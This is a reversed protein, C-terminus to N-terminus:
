NIILGLKVSLRNFDIDLNYDNEASYRLRHFRYGVSMTFGYGSRSHSIIGIAPNILFGGKATMPTQSVPWPGPWIISSSVYDPVVDYYVTRSGEIPVQYGAQLMAYPTVRTERLKYLLNATIPLYTEKLFEVGIGAGASLKNRINYNLSSGLVFPASQSNDPNGALVGVESLNFIKSPTYTFEKFGSDDAFHRSPRNKTIMEVESTEFVWTNKGSVVRIKELDSSYIYRGKLVTGNKLHVYGNEYFGTVAQSKAFAVIFLTCVILLIRKM